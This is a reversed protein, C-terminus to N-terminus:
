SSPRGAPDEGAAFLDSVGALDLVRSVAEPVGSLGFAAGADAARHHARILTRLGMSDVFALGSCDVTVAAGPVIRRDLEEWLRDASALDLDGSVAVVVRGGDGAVEFAFRDMPM